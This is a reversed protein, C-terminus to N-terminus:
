VAGTSLTSLRSWEIWLLRACARVCACVCVCVCVCVRVCARVCVIWRLACACLHLCLCEVKMRASNSEWKLRLRYPYDRESVCALAVMCAYICTICDTYERAWENKPIRMCMGYLYIFLHMNRRACVCACMCTLLFVSLRARSDTIFSISARAGGWFFVFRYVRGYERVCVSVCVYVVISLM